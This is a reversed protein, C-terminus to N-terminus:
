RGAQPKQSPKRIFLNKHTPSRGTMVLIRLNGCQGSDPFHEQSEERYRLERVPRKSDDEPCDRKGNLYEINCITIM